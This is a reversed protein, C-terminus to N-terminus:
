SSSKSRPAAAKSPKAATPAPPAAPAPAAAPPADSAMGELVEAIFAKMKADVRAVCAGKGPMGYVVVDGRKAEAFCPIGVLDEEGDVLIRVPWDKSRAAQEVASWAEDTVTAAPNRVRFGTKGWTGLEREFEASPGGRQTRLDCVFVAPVIGARKLDLSVVDGVAFIRKAGAVAAPLEATSVVPGFPEALKARLHTPLHLDRGPRM